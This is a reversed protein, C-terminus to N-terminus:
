EQLYLVLGSLNVEGGLTIVLSFKGGRQQGFLSIIKDLPRLM